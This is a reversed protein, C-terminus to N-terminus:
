LHKYENSGFQLNPLVLGASIEGLFPVELETLETALPILKNLSRNIIHEKHRSEM